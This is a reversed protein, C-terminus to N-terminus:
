ASAEDLTRVYLRVTYGGGLEDQEFADLDAQARDLDDGEQAEDVRQELQALSLPADALLRSLDGGNDQVYASICARAADYDFDDDRACVQLDSEFERGLDAPTDGRSPSAILIFEDQDRLREMGDASDDLSTIEYRPM